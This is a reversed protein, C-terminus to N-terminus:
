QRRLLIMTQSSMPAGTRTRPRATAVLFITDETVATSISRVFVRRAAKGQTDTTDIFTAIRRPTAGGSAEFTYAISTDAPPILAGHYRLQFSVLWANVPTKPAGALTDGFLFFRLSDVASVGGSASVIITESDKGRTISDARPVTFLSDAQSQLSGITAYVRAPAGDSKRALAVVDGTNLMKLVTDPSSFVFEAAPVPNNKYNLATARLPQLSGLSDRLTDGVVISPYSSGEFRVSVIANPDTAVETCGSVAVALVAVWQRM